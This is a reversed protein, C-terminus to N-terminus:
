PHQVVVTFAVPGLQNTVDSVQVCYLGAAATGSLTSNAGAQLLAPINGTGLSCAGAAPTGVAVGMVVNPNATGDPNTQVASTLTVAVSGGPANVNFVVSAAQRVGGIPAPVTGTLTDSTLTPATTTSSSNSGGSCGACTGVTVLLALALSRNLHKMAAGSVSAQAIWTGECCRRFFPLRTEDIEM